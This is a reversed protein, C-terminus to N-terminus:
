RTILPHPQLAMSPQSSDPLTDIDPQQPGQLRPRKTEPAPENVHGFMFIALQVPEKFRARSHRLLKLDEEFVEIEGDTYKLAAARQTHPIHSPFRWVMPQWSIQVRELHDWQTLQAAKTFLPDSTPLTFNKYRTVQFTSEALGIAEAWDSIATVM